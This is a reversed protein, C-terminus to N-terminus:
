APLSHPGRVRTKDILGRAEDMRKFTTLVDPAALAGSPYVYLVGFRVITLAAKLRFSIACECLERGVAVVAVDASQQAAVGYRVAAGAGRIADLLYVIAARMRLRELRRFNGKTIGNRQLYLAHEPDMLAEFAACSVDAVSTSRVRWGRVVIFLSFLLLVAAIAGLLFLHIM